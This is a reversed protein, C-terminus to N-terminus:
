NQAIFEARADICGGGGGKPRVSPVYSVPIFGSPANPNFILGNPPYCMSMPTYHSPNPMFDPIQVPFSFAPLLCM